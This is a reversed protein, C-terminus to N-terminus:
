HQFNEFDAFVSWNTNTFLRIRSIGSKISSSAKFSAFKSKTNIQEKYKWNISFTLFVDCEFWYWILIQKFRTGTDLITFTVDTSPLHLVSALNVM